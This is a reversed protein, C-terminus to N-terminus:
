GKTERRLAWKVHTAKPESIGTLMIQRSRRGQGSGLYVSETLALDGGGKVRFRWGAGSPTQLLVSRGDQLPSARLTPHLHFRITYARGAPGELIDEGRVDEGSPDLYLLRRCISGFLPRYGRHELELWIGDESERRRVRADAGRRPGRGPGRGSGPLRLEVANHDEMGLASHAATSRQAMRWDPDRSIAAGCNVILREPGASVEISLPGAHNVEEFGPAPDAGRDVLVLLRGAQLREYGGHPATRPPRGGANTRELLLDLADGDGERSGNFLALGGDGHRFFRLMPAMRDIATQLAAPTERQAATLAARYAVLDRLVLFQLTPNRSAHSGDPHIVRAIERDVIIDLDGRRARWAPCSLSAAALALLAALRGAGARRAGGWVQMGFLPATRRLHRYQLALGARFRDQFDAGGAAVLRDYCALWMWLRRGAVDPRWAIPTRAMDAVTIERLWADVLAAAKEGPWGEGLALLDRLWDFGHLAASMSRPAASAHGDGDGDDTGTPTADTPSDDAGFRLGGALLRQGREASGSWPDPPLVDPAPMPPGKLSWAYLGTKQAAGLTLGACIRM